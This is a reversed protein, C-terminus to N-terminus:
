LSPFAEERDHRLYPEALLLVLARPDTNGRLQATGATWHRDWAADNKHEQSQGLALPECLSGHTNM